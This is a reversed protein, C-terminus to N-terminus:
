KGWAAKICHQWTWDPHKARIAKAEQTKEILKQQAATRNKAPPPPAPAAKAVRKRKPAAVPAPKAARKRKPAAVPAAPAPKAARKRKPAAVPAQIEALDVVEPVVKKRRPM